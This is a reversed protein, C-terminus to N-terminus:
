ERNQCFKEVKIKEERVEENRKRAEKVRKRGTFTKYGLVYAVGFPVEENFYYYTKKGVKETKVFAGLASRRTIDQLQRRVRQPPTDLVSSIDSASLKEGSKLLLLVKGYLTTFPSKEPMTICEPLYKRFIAIDELAKAINLKQM